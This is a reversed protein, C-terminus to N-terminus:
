GTEVHNASLDLTQATVAIHNTSKGSEDSTDNNLMPLKVIYLSSKGADQDSGTSPPLKFSPSPLVHVPGTWFEVITKYIEDVAATVAPLATASMSVDM